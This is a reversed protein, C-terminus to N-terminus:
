PGAGPACEGTGNVSEHRLRVAEEEVRAKRAMSADGDELPREVFQSRDVHLGERPM